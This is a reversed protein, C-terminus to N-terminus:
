GEAAKKIFLNACYFPWVFPITIVMFLFFILCPLLRDGKKHKRVIVILLMNWFCITLFLYVCASYVQFIENLDM